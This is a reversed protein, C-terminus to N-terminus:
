GTGYNTILWPGTNTRQMTINWFSDVQTGPPPNLMDFTCHVDSTATTQGEVQCKLHSFYISNFDGWEMMGKESPNFYTLALPMNHENIASFWKYATQVPSDVSIQSFSSNALNCGGLGLLFVFLTVFGATRYYRPRFECKGKLMQYSRARMETWELIDPVTGLKDKAGYSTLKLSEFNSCNRLIAEVPTYSTVASNITNLTVSKADTPTFRLDRITAWM